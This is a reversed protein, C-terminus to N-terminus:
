VCKTIKFDAYNFGFYNYVYEFYVYDLVENAVRKPMVITSNPLLTKINYREFQRKFLIHSICNNCDICLKIIDDYVKCYVYFPDHKAICFNDDIWGNGCGYIKEDIHVVHDVHTIINDDKLCHLHDPDFARHLGVDPRLRIYCDYQINNIKEYRKVITYLRDLKYLWYLTNAVKNDKTHGYKKILQQHEDFNKVIGSTYQTFSEVDIVKWHDAYSKICSETTLDDWFSGFMDVQHGAAKLPKILHNFNLGVTKYFLDTRGSMLIAVNM